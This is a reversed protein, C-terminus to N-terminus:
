LFFKNINDLSYYVGALQGYIAANTYIDGKLNICTQFMLLIIYNKINKDAIWKRLLSFNLVESREGEPTFLLGTDKLPILISLLSDIMSLDRGSWFSNENSQKLM